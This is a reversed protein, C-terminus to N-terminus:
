KKTTKINTTINKKKEFKSHTLLFITRVIVELAMFHSCTLPKSHSSAIKDAILKIAMIIM